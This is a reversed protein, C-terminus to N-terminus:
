ETEEGYYNILVKLAPLYVFESNYADHPHMWAGDRHAKLERSLHEFQDKLTAVTIRDATEWDITLGTLGTM